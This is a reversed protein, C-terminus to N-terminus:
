KELLARWDRAGHVIRLIEVGKEHEV